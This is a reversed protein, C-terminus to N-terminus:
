GRLQCQSINLFELVETKKLYDAFVKVCSLNFSNGSINLYQLDESLILAESLAGLSVLPKVASL